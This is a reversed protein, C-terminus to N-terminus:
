VQGNPYLAYLTLRDQWLSAIRVRDRDAADRIAGLPHSLVWYDGNRFKTQPTTCDFRGPAALMKEPRDGAAVRAVCVSLPAGTVASQARAAAPILFTTLAVLMALLFVPDGIRRM